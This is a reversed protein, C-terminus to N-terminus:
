KLNQEVHLIMENLPYDEAGSFNKLENLGNSSIHVIADAVLLKMENDLGNIIGLLFPTDEETGIDKLSKIIEKKNKLSEKPFSSKLEAATKENYVKAMTIIAEFRINPEPHHLCKEIETYFSFRHYNGALKLAFAVVSSNTSQLWKEMGKFDEPPLHSLERLLIIQNWESIKYPITDLFALGSFGILRIVTVQAEIRILENKDNTYKKVEDLCNKLDMVGIEQIRKARIHWRVGKLSMIGYKELDLQLYLKKLNSASNGSLNKSTAIIKSTLLGRFRNNSILPNLDFPLKIKNLMRNVVEEEDSFIATNITLNIKEEWEQYKARRKSKIRLTLIIFLLM